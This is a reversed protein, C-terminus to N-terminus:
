NDNATVKELLTATDDRELMWRTFPHLSSMYDRVALTEPSRFAKTNHVVMMLESFVGPSNIQPCDAHFDVSVDPKQLIADLMDYHKAYVHFSDATHHYAGLKLDPYTGLLRSWLLEHVLSFCPADNGMGYIADQSRMRVYMILDGDRIHFNLYATCPYDKTQSNLHDNNLICIAARRSDSDKILESIVREFNSIGKSDGGPVKYRKGFIYYGYNSNITGDDNILGKWMKAAQSISIDKPDGRLYWMFEQKIYDLKLKRADFCMFRTRPWLSYSYDTIELCEEGRPRVVQGRNKLDKLIRYFAHTKLGLDNM